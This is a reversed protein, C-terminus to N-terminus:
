DKKGLGFLKLLKSEQKAPRAAKSAAKAKATKSQKPPPKLKESM